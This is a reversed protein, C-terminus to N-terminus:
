GRLCDPILVSSEAPERDLFAARASEAVKLAGAVRSHCWSLVIQVRLAEVERMSLPVAGRAYSELFADVLHAEVRPPQTLSWIDEGRIPTEHTACCFLIAFALDYVRPRWACWDLDVLATVRVQAMVVNAPQLDGHVLTHPLAAYDTDSLARGAVDVWERYRELPRACAPSEAGIRDALDLIEKPDTEGRPGLKEYRGPFMEGETHFRGVAAAVAKVAAIDGEPMPTGSVFPFVQWVRDGDIWYSQGDATMRPPVVPVGRAHLFRHAANDFAIREPDSYGSFRRRIFWGGSSTDFVYNRNRTGHLSRYVHIEGLAFRRAVGELVDNHM